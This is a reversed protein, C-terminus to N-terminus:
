FTQVHLFPAQRPRSFSVNLIDERDSYAQSLGSHTFKGQDILCPHPVPANYSTLFTNRICHPRVARLLRRHILFGRVSVFLM